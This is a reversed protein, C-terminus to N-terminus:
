PCMAAGLAVRTRGFDLDRDDGVADIRQGVMELGVRLVIM